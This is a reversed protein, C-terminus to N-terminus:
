TVYMVCVTCIYIIIYRFSNFIHAKERNLCLINFIQIHHSSFFSFRILVIHYISYSYIFGSRSQVPISHFSHMWPIVLVFLAYACMIVTARVCQMRLSITYHVGRCCRLRILPLRAIAITNEQAWARESTDKNNEVAHIKIEYLLAYASVINKICMTCMWNAIDFVNNM